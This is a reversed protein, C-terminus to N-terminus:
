LLGLQRLGYAIGGDHVEKTVLDAFSKVEDSANGMAVGTGVFSLMERDNLGDGFAVAQSAPIGLHALMAEIGLAKSGNLPMIDMAFNHWRVSSVSSLIDQYSEEEHKQCFLFAQYIVNEKWYDALCEPASLKLSQFSEIVHPHNEKNAFCEETGLYVLPHEFRGAMEGLMALSEKTLANEYVVKGESVVYSGNFSIYTDIGLEKAVPELHFPSRGTAIAVKMGNEQLQRISERTDDPLKHEKTLLTGDIDFFVIKYSM